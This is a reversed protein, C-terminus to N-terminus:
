IKEKGMLRVKLLPILFQDFYWFIFEELLERRKLSEVANHHYQQGPKRQPLLWDCESTSLGQMVGHLTMVEYRRGSVFRKVDIAM